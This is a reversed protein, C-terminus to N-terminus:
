RRRSRKRSTLFYIIAVIGAVIGFPLLNLRQNQGFQISGSLGTSAGQLPISSIPAAPTSTSTKATRGTINGLFRGFVTKPPSPNNGGFVAGLIPLGGMVAPFAMNRNKETLM